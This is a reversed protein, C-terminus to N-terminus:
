FIQVDLSFIRREIMLRFKNEYTERKEKKLEINKERRRALTNM